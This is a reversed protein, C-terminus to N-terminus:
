ELMCKRMQSPKREYKYFSCRRCTRNDCISASCIEKNDPSPTYCKKALDHKYFIDRLDQKSFLNAFLKDVCVLKYIKENDNMMNPDYCTRTWGKHFYVPEDCLSTPWVTRYEKHRSALFYDKMLQCDHIVFMIVCPWAHEGQSRYPSPIVGMANSRDLKRWIWQTANNSLTMNVCSCYGKLYDEPHDEPPEDYVENDYPEKFEWPEM